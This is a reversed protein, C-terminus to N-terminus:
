LESNLCYEAHKWVVMEHQLTSLPRVMRLCCCSHTMMNSCAVGVGLPGMAVRNFYSMCMSLLLSLFAFILLPNFWLKYITQVATHCRCGLGVGLVCVGM